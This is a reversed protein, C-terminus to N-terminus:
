GHAIPAIRHPNPHHNRVGSGQAACRAPRCPQPLTPQPRSRRLAELWPRACSSWPEGPPTTDVPESSTSTPIKSPRWVSTSPGHHLIDTLAAALIPVEPLATPGLQRTATHLADIRSTVSAPGTGDLHAAAPPPTPLATAMEQPEELRGQRRAGPPPTPVYAHLHTYATLKAALREPGMTARDVEIFTRLMVGGSGGDSGRRYYLLADPIVVDGGGLPHHVEPLWDLPWCLEGRKRADQLFALATEPVTLWHGVRLRVATRDSATKPPRRGRLESWQSAVRVGYQTPFWARTRGAQPLTVRDFLGEGRLKTLRRRTQEIRVGPACILHMQETTAM